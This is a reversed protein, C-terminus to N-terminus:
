FPVEDDVNGFSNAPMPIDKAKISRYPEESPKQSAKMINFSLVRLNMFIIVKDDKTWEKGELEFVLQVTDGVGISQMDNAIQNIGQFKLINEKGDSRLEMGVIELKSFKATVQELGKNQKVVIMM